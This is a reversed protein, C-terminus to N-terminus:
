TPGTEPGVNRAFDSHVELGGLSQGPDCLRTVSLSRAMVYAWVSTHSVCLCM